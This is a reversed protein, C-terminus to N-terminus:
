PNPAIGIEKFAEDMPKTEEGRRSEMIAEDRAAESRFIKFRGARVEQLVFADQLPKLNAITVLEYGLSEIDCIVNNLDHMYGGIEFTAATKLPRLTALERVLENRETETM